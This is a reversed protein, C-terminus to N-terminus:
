DNVLTDHLEDFIMGYFVTEPLIEIDFGEQKYKEAKKHKNSKGEKITTCYDNDGLILFNTTQTVSDQNNGGLDAVIKMAERRTFKELKGTFVCNKKYLPNDPNNKLADGRIDSAKIKHSFIRQFEDVSSYELLIDQRMKEYCFATIECDTLSRHIERATQGFKQALFDLKHSPYEPYLKRAIRLTDIFDNTFPKSLCSLYNEYLFNVDFNVNHGVVINDFLFEDFAPLIEGITPSNKLMENTIGTKETLCDPILEVNPKVLSQFKDVLTRNSYKLAGIEIISDFEPIFGTTELDVVCFDTPFDILSKGKFERKVKELSGFIDEM